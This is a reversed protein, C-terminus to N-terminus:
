RYLRYPSLNQRRCLALFLQRKWPDALSFKYEIIPEPAHGLQAHLRDLASRAAQKEGLSNTGNFLAEVKQIKEILEERTM